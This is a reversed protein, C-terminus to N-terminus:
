DTVYRHARRPWRRRQRRLAAMLLMAGFYGPSHDLYSYGWGALPNIRNRFELSFRLIRSPRRPLAMASTTRTSAPKGMGTTQLYILGPNLKRLEEYGLGWRSADHLARGISEAAVRLELGPAIEDIQRM